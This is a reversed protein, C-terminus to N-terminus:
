PCFNTLSTLDFNSNKDMIIVDSFLLYSHRAYRLNWGSTLTETPVNPSYKRLNWDRMSKFNKLGILRQLVVDHIVQLEGTTWQYLYLKQM